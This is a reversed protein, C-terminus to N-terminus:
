QFRSVIVDEPDYDDTVDVHNVPFGNFRLIKNIQCRIPEFTDGAVRM